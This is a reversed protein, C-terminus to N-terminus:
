VINLEKLAYALYLNDPNTSSFGSMDITQGESYSGGSSRPAPQSAMAPTSYSSTSPTIENQTTSKPAKASAVATNMSTQENSQSTQSVPTASSAQSASKKSSAQSASTASSGSKTPTIPDTRRKKTLQEYIGGTQPRWGPSATNYGADVLSKLIQDASNGKYYPKWLRVHAAVGEDFSKYVAHKQNDAGIVYGASGTGTQGFPNTKNSAFYVSNPNQLYGTELMAIAATVEPAPSGAKQAAARVSEFAESNSKPVPGSDVEGNTYEGQDNAGFMNGLGVAVGVGVAFKQINLGESKQEAQEKEGTLSEQPEASAALSEGVRGKSLRTTNQKQLDEALRDEKERNKRENKLSKILDTYSTSISDIDFRLGSLVRQFRSDSTSRQVIERERIKETSKIKLISNNKDEVSTAVVDLLAALEPAAIFSPKIKKTENKNVKVDASLLTKGGFFKSIDIVNTKEQEQQQVEAM